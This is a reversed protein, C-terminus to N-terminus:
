EDERELQELAHHLDLFDEMPVHPELSINTLALRDATGCRKQSKKTRANEVLIRRMSEAAASFFHGRNEWPTDGNTGM